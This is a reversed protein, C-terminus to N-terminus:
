YEAAIFQLRRLPAVAEPDGGAGKLEAFWEPWNVVQRVKGSKSGFAELLRNQTSRRNFVACVRDCGGLVIMNTAHILASPDRPGAVSDLITAAIPEVAIREALYLPALVVNLSNLRPLVANLSAGTVTALRLNPAVTRLYTSARVIADPEDLVIVTANPFRTSFALALGGWGAGVVALTRKKGKLFDGIFRVQQLALMAYCVIAGSVNLRGVVSPYGFQGLGGPESSWIGKADLADLTAHLRRVTLEHAPDGTEYDEPLDGMLRASDKRLEAVTLASVDMWTSVAAHEPRAEDLMAVAVERADLYNRFAIDDRAEEIRDAILRAAGVVTGSQNANASPKAMGIIEEAIVDGASRDAGRPRAFWAKFGRRRHRTVDIGDLLDILNSEVSIWDRCLVMVDRDVLVKFHNALSQTNDYKSLIPTLCPCDALLSDSMATTNIGITATAHAMMSRFAHHLDATQPLAGGPPWVVVGDLDLRQFVDVNAPHPRIVLSMGRLRPDGSQRLQAHISEVVWSEDRAINKSSGLYIAYPRGADIGMRDCLDSRNEPEEEDFWRDLFPSGVIRCVSEPFQHFERIDDYHVENWLFIVDPVIHHMGKTSLNDWTMTHLAVPISIRKAAKVYEIEESYRMNSPSVVVMDPREEWLHAAVGSAAPTLSEMWRLVADTIKAVVLRQVRANSRRAYLWKPLYNVWRAIYFDTTRSGRRAYNAYSRIERAPFIWQRWRDTRRVSWGIEVQPYRMRFADLAANQHEITKKTSWGEDFLVKVSAGRRLLAVIVTEHYIFHAIARCVYLM